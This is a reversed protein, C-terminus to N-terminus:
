LIINIKKYFHSEMCLPKGLDQVDEWSCLCIRHDFDCSLCKARVIFVLLLM